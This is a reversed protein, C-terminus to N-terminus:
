RAAVSGSRSGTQTWAKLENWNRWLSVAGRALRWVARPRWVVVVVVTATVLTPHQVVWARARQWLLRGRDVTQLATDLPALADAVQGRQSAIRERLRGRQVYLEILRQDM